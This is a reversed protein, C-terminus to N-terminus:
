APPPPSTLSTAVARVAELFLAPQFPKALVPRRTQELFKLAEPNATDGTIFVFRGALAPDEAAATRYFDDGSGDPMRIDSVILDYHRSRVRELAERGGSALDVQWGTEILLTRLLERVAPEDEVLLAPRGAGIPPPPAPPPPSVPRTTQAPLELTFVTRGPESEVGLRGGHQEVIGYSVSLGLGTGTGVEKTTFFPEFIRPLIAPPIGPGDDTVQVLVRTGGQLVGTRFTIRGGSRRASVIAQEANLLLNLFVQQLQQADGTVLPLGAMFERVVGIDSVTLQSHRLMVAQDIVVHLDVGAREHPRQRAFLLLNQVIKAMRDGQSVMLEVPRQVAPPLERQLLLQGYGIIVSLPNNLEHAVGSVLQGLASLKAAEVLQHQTDRLRALSDRASEYLRANDLALASQDAFAQLTQRDDESFERGTEAGVAIAGVVRERAVLPVALAAAYGKAMFRQRLKPSLWVSPENLIDVSAVMRREEAAPGAVGEGRQLVIGSVAAADQGYAAISQLTGDSPEYRFMVTRRVDLLEAIRRTVVEGIRSVDLTGTLERGVLAQAEAVERRRQAERYLRANQIAIAAQAVFMEIVERTETVLRIPEAHALSLVALLDKGALVPVAVFFRLDWRRAWDVDIMREDAAIDPVVLPARVRAVWGIGGTDYDFEREPLDDAIEPVSGGAFTVRRRRDDALWFAVFRAGTLQAASASIERLLEDLELAGSIRQNITALAATRESQESEAQYLSANRIAVGAQAALLQLAEQVEHDPLGESIYDLIGVFTDGVTIPVGYYSFQPRQQWWHRALTRPHHVPEPILVPLRREFVLGPLGDTAPLERPLGDLEPGSVGAFRLVNRTADFVHVAALAGPSMEATARTIRGFVDDLALSSTISQSVAALSQLRRAREVAQAYVRANNIAVAARAALSTVLAQDEDVSISGTRARVTLVGLLTDGSVVPVALMTGLGSEDAWQRFHVRPELQVDPVFIPTRSEAAAGSLGEGFGLTDQMVFEPVGAAICQARRRLRRAVPDVTWVQVVQAGLLRSTAEAIRQLVDDLDLSETVLREVEALERLRETQRRADAYLRASDIALAAQEALVTLATREEDTFTRETWYHVCLAGHIRGKSALPAAAVARFGEREIRLRREPLLVCLADELINSTMIPRGELVCRSMPGGTAPIVSGAYGASLRGAARLVRLERRDPDWSVVLAGEAAMVELAKEVITDLVEDLDLSSTLSRGITEIARVWAARRRRETVETLFAIAGAIAGQADCIPACRAAMWGSTTDAGVYPADITRTTEGELARRLHVILGLGALSRLAQEAPVGIADEARTGTLRGLAANWGVVILRPDVVVVPEEVSDILGLGLAGGPDSGPPHGVLRGVARRFAASRLWPM